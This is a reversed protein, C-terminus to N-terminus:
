VWMLESTYAFVGHTVCFARQSSSSSSRNSISILGDGSADNYLNALIHFRKIGDLLSISTPRGCSTSASMKSRFGTPEFGPCIGHVPDMPKIGDGQDLGQVSPKSARARQKKMDENVLEWETEFEYPKFVGNTICSAMKCCGVSCMLLEKDPLWLSNLARPPLGCFCADPTIPPPLPRQLLPILVDPPTAMQQLVEFHHRTEPMNMKGDWIRIFSAAISVIDLMESPRLQSSVCRMIQHYKISPAVQSTVDVVDVSRCWIAIDSM